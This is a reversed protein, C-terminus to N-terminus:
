EKEEGTEVPLFSEDFAQPLLKKVSTLIREGGQGLLLIPMEPALEALVQRCAGCPAIPKKTDAWVALAKFDKKGQAVASFIATREACNTLGFSVNEINCGAVISGDGCLLAAGVKFHSYPAYARERAKQAEDILRDWCIDTM